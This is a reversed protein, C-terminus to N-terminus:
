LGFHPEIRLFAECFVIYSTIKLISNPALHHFQLGYFYMLGQLFPYIPFGLGRILYSIFVVREGERPEPIRSASRLATGVLPSCCKVEDQSPLYGSAQLEVINGATVTSRLWLGRKSDAKEKSAAATAGKGKGAM